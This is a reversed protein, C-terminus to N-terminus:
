SKKEKPETPVPYPLDMVTVKDGNEPSTLLHGQQAADVRLVALGQYHNDHTHTVTLFKGIAQKSDDTFLDDGARLTHASDAKVKFMRRNANGLYHLRAVVEQGPYCGKSFSVGNILEMNAMQPVFAEQTAATIMPLGALTDLWQWYEHSYILAEEPKPLAIADPSGAILYRDTVGPLKVCVLSHGQTVQYDQEPLELNILRSLWTAQNNSVGLIVQDDMPTIKVKSRMIFMQLRKIVEPAIDGSTFLLFCDAQRVVYFVALMRGKPTCYGTLQAHSDTVANIDNTLQGQLFSSADEGSVEYCCLNDLVSIVPRDTETSFHEPSIINKFSAEKM